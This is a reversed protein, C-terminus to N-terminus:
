SDHRETSTGKAGRCRRGVTSRWHRRSHACMNVVETGLFTGWRHMRQIPHSDEVADSSQESRLRQPRGLSTLSHGCGSTWLRHRWCWRWLWTVVGGRDGGLASRTAKLRGSCACAGIGRSLCLRRPDWCSTRPGRCARLRQEAEREDVKVRGFLGDRVARQFIEGRQKEKLADFEDGHEMM